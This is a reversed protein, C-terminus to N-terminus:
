DLPVPSQLVPIAVDYTYECTQLAKEHLHNYSYINLENDQDGLSCRSQASIYNEMTEFPESYINENPSPDESHVEM